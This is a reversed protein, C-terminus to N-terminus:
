HERHMAIEKQLLAGYKSRLGAIEKLREKQKRGGHELGQKNYFYLGLLEPIHHIRYKTNFVTRLWFEWDGAVEYEPNFYGVKDHIARRWMVQPGCPNKQVIIQKTYDDRKLFGDKHHSDFTENPHETLIQDIYVIGVDERADIHSAMIELADNRLRDDTNTNVVYEGCAAKSGMAWADYITVRKECKIYKINKYRSRYEVIIAEENEQSGGNVAVIEMRGSRFLTQEVLGQLCERIFEESNYISIVASVKIKKEARVQAPALNRKVEDLEKEVGQDGPNRELFSTYIKKAQGYENLDKLVDGLNLVTLRDDPDIDLSRTLFHIAKDRDKESWCIVGINNLIKPNNPFREVLALLLAKGEKQNGMQYTIEAEYTLLEQSDPNKIKLSDVMALAERGQGSNQLEEIKKYESELDDLDKVEADKVDEPWSAQMKVDIDWAGARMLEARAKSFLDANGANQAAKALRWTVRWHDCGLNIAACYESVAEEYKADNELILGTWLRLYPDDIYRTRYNIIGGTASCLLPTSKAIRKEAAIIEEEDQSHMSIIFDQAKEGLAEIFCDAGSLDETRASAVNLLRNADIRGGWKRKRKEQGLLSDYVPCLAKAANEAGFVKSAYEKANRGLEQRKGPNHYLYEIAEKYETETNVVMGTKENIVLQKVGGYPFVVPPVGAYMVEQLTLEASAYTDECLPCGFLDLIEIVPKIDRAYGRFDFRDIVGLNMAQQKLTNEIGGGCVIFKVHPINVAASMSVYNKHMKVFNVTGIYGVNFGDHAKAEIGELRAFDAADYVMVVRNQRDKAPIKSFVPLNEYTYPNSAINIDAFDVLKQTIIQPAGEGCIHYWIMLRMAPLDSRFLEYIEHNNWFNVHVIDSAEIERRITTIDPESFVRIKAEDAMKLAEPVAPLLSLVSHQYDGIKSTNRATAIMGRAAGGLNLAQIIHLIKM